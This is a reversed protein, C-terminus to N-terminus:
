EAKPILEELEERTLGNSLQISYSYEGDTWVALYFYGENGKMTVTYDHVAAEAEIGYSNFDGSNDGEGLSKRFVLTQDDGRYIIQAVEDWYSLYETEKAEFPLAPMDEVPFGVAEALASQDGLKRIGGGPELIAPPKEATGPEMIKPIAFVSALVLAFCAAFSLYIKYHRPLVAKHGTKLSSSQLNSLVRAKMEDTVYIKEMIEDYKKM